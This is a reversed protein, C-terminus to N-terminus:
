TLPVRMGHADGPEGDVAIDGEARDLAVPGSPRTRSMMLPMGNASKSSEPVLTGARALDPQQRGHKGALDHGEAAVVRLVGRLEAVLDGVRGNAKKLGDVETIPGPSAM